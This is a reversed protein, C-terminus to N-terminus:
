TYPVTEVRPPDDPPRGPLPQALPQGVGRQLPRQALTGNALTEDMVAVPPTLVGAHVVLPQELRVPQDDAHAPLAVAPVVRDDLAEKRRQLHLEAVAEGRPRQGM